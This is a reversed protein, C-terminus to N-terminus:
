GAIAAGTAYTPSREYGYMPTAHSICEQQSRTCWKRPFGIQGNMGLEDNPHVIKSVNIAIQNRAPAGEIM